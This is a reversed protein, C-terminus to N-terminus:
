QIRNEVYKQYENPSRFNLCVSLKEEMLNGVCSLLVQEYLLHVKISKLEIVCNFKLIWTTVIHVAQKLMSFSQM